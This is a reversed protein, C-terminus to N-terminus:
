ARAFRCFGLPTAAFSVMPRTCVCDNRPWFSSAAVSVDAGGPGAARLSTPRLRPRLRVQPLARVEGRPSAGLVGHLCGAEVPPVKGHAAIPRQQPGGAKLTRRINRRHLPPRPRSHKRPRLRITPTARGHRCSHLLSALVSTERNPRLLDSEAALVCIRCSSSLPTTVSKAHVHSAM